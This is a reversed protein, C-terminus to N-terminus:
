YLETLALSTGIAAVIIVIIITLVIGVLTWILRSRCYNRKNINEGGSFSWVIALILGVLPISLLLELWFFQSTKLPEALTPQANQQMNQQVPEAAPAADAQLAAGCTPCFKTNDPSQNGCVPCFM